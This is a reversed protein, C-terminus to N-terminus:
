TRFPSGGVGGVVALGGLEVLGGVVLGALLGLLWGM